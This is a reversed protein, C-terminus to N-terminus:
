KWVYNLRVLIYCLELTLFGSFIRFWCIVYNHRLLFINSPRVFLFRLQLTIEMRLEFTCFYFSNKVDDFFTVVYSCPLFLYRLQSLILFVDCHCIFVFHLKWAMGMRLEFTGFYLTISVDDLFAVVDFLCIFYNPCFLFNTVLVFLFSVYNGYTIGHTIEIRLAVYWM